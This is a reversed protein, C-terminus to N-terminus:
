GLDGTEKGALPTPTDFSWPEVAWGHRSVAAARAERQTPFHEPRYWHCGTIGCPCTHVPLHDHLPETDNRQVGPEMAPCAAALMALLRRPTLPHPGGDVDEWGGPHYLRWVIWFRAARAGSM